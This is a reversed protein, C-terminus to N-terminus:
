LKVLNLAQVGSEHSVFVHYVGISFDDLIIETSTSSSNVTFILRGMGNYVSIQAKLPRNWNLSFHGNSPNPFVTATNTNSKEEVGVFVRANLSDVVALCDGLEYFDVTPFNPFKDLTSWCDLARNIFFDFENALESLDTRGIGVNPDTAFHNLIFLDNNEDGRNFECTFDSNNNNSFPTEVAYEWVYHYWDEGPSADNKDSLVVLRKNDDIMEQLTPWPEGLGQEFTYGQIETNIFATEVLEFDANCEFIITVIENPNADLFDKIETLNSELTTTGLLAVSHYVTAVGSEDYVDIMLARVGDNLQRTLGYTHNPLNFGDEESNFANHTTLYSVQNYAKDCLDQHGNCQAQVLRPILFLSLILTVRLHSKLM